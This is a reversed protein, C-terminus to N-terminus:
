LTIIKARGQEASAVDTEDAVAGGAAAIAERHKEAKKSRKEEKRKAKDRVKAEKRSLGGGDDGAATGADSEVGDGGGTARASTGDEASAGDGGSVSVTSAVQSALRNVDEGDDADGGGSGGGGGDGDGDGASRKESIDVPEDGGGGGTSSVRGAPATAPAPASTGGAGRRAGLPRVSNYHEGDHYSVHIEKPAAKGGATQSEIRYSPHEFQHVVIHVNLAQAAAILEVQGAWEGDSKLREVYAAFDKDEEEESAVKRDADEGFSMFPSFEEEHEEVYGMVKQRYDDFNHERGDLQDALSRFFCNGDRGVEKLDFGDLLLARGFSQVEKSDLLKRHRRGKERNRNLEAKHAKREEKASKGGGKGSKGM